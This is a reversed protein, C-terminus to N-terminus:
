RRRADHACELGSAVEALAKDFTWLRTGPRLRVSALLAVDVLGVGRDQLAHREVLSELEDDTAVPLPELQALLALTDRRRPPTGLSIELRVWPHMVIRGEALLTDLGTSRDRFHRVWVSTDALIM